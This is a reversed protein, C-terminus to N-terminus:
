QLQKKEKESFKQDTCGNVLVKGIESVFQAGTVGGSQTMLGASAIRDWFCSEGIWRPLPAHGGDAYWTVFARLEVTTLQQIAAGLMRVKYPLPKQEVMWQILAGHFSTKQADDEDIAREVAEAFLDVEAGALQGAEVAKLRRDFEELLERTRQNRRADKRRACETEVAKVATALSTIAVGAGPHGLGICNGTIGLLDIVTSVGRSALASPKEPSNM